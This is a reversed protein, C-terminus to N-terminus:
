KMLSKYVDFTSMGATLTPNYLLKLMFEEYPSMQPPNAETTKSIRLQSNWLGLLGKYGRPADPLGMSRLLCERILGKIMESSHGKWIYCVAMSIHNDADPLFYGDVQYPSNPTFKVATLLNPEVSTRFETGGNQGGGIVTGPPGDKFPSSFGKRDMFVIRLNGTLDQTEKESPLYSIDLKTAQKLFVVQDSIQSEALEKLGPTLVGSGYIKLLYHERGLSQYPKLDNPFGFAIRVPSNWKNLAVFRPVGKDRFLFEYLWPYLPRIIEPRLFLSNIFALGQSSTFRESSYGFYGGREPVAAESYGWIYHSFAADMFRALVDEKSFTSGDLKVELPLISAKILTFTPDPSSPINYSTQTRENTTSAQHETADLDKAYAFSTRLTTNYSFCILSMTMLFVSFIKRM